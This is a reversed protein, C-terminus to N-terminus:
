AGVSDAGAFIHHGGRESNDAVEDVAVLFFDIEALFSKCFKNM